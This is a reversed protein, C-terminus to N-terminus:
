REDAPDEEVLGAMEAIRRDHDQKFRRLATAAVPIAHGQDGYFATSGLSQIPGSGEKWYVVPLLLLEPIRHRVRAAHVEAAFADLSGGADERSARPQALRLYLAPDPGSPPRKPTTGKRRDLSEVADAALVAIQLVRRRYGADPDPGDAAELAGRIRELYEAPLLDDHVLAERGAAIEDYISM